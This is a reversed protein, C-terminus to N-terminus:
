LLYSRRLTRLKFAFAFWKPRWLEIPRQLPARRVVPLRRRAAGSPVRRVARPLRRAVPLSRVARWRDKRAASTKKSGSAKKSGGASAKGGGGGCTWSYILYGVGALVIIGCISAGVILAMNSGGGGAAADLDVAGDLAGRQEFTPYKKHQKFYKPVASLSDQNTNSIL